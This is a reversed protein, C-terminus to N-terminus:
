SSESPSRKLDEALQERRRDLEKKLAAPITKKCKKCCSGGIIDPLQECWDAHQSLINALFLEFSQRPLLGSEKVDLDLEEHRTKLKDRKLAEAARALKLKRMAQGDPSGKKGHAARFSKWADIDYGASTDPVENPYDRMWDRITRPSVGLIRAAEKQEIVIM